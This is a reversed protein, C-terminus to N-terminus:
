PSKQCLKLKVEFLKQLLKESLLRESKVRKVYSWTFTYVFSGLFSHWHPSFLAEDWEMESRTARWAGKPQWIKETVTVTVTVAECTVQKYAQLQGGRNRGWHVVVPVAARVGARLPNPHAPRHLRLGCGRRGPPRRILLRPGQLYHKCRRRRVEGVRCRDPIAAEAGHHPAADFGLPELKVTLWGSGRWGEAQKASWNLESFDQTRPLWSGQESNLKPMSQYSSSHADIYSM